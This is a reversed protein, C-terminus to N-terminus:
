CMNYTLKFLITSAWFVATQKLLQVYLWWWIIKWRFLSVAPGTRAAPQGSKMGQRWTGCVEREEECYFTSQQEHWLPFEFTSMFFTGNHTGTQTHSNLEATSFLKCICGCWLLCVIGSSCQQQSGNSQFYQFCMQSFMVCKFVIEHRMLNMYLNHIELGWGKNGLRNWVLRTM